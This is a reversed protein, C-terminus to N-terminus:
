KDYRVGVLWWQKDKEFAAMEFKMSGTAAGDKPLETKLIIWHTPTALWALKKGDFEGPVGTTPQYKAFPLVEVGTVIWKGQGWAAAISNTIATVVEAPSGATYYNRLFTAHDKKEYSARLTKALEDVSAAGKDAGRCALCTVLLAISFLYHM